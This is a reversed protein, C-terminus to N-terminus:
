SSTLTSLSSSIRIGSADDAAKRSRQYSSLTLLNSLSNIGSESGYSDYMGPYSSYIIPLSYGTELGSYSNSTTYTSPIEGLNSYVGYTFPLSYTKHSIDPLSSYSNYIANSGSIGYTTGSSVTNIGTSSLCNNNCNVYGNGTGYNGVSNYANNWPDVQISGYGAGTGYENTSYVYNNPVIFGNNTPSSFSNQGALGSNATNSSSGYNGSSFGFGQSTSGSNGLACKSCYGSRDYGLQGSSRKSAVLIIAFVLHLM